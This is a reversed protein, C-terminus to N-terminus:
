EVFFILLKRYQIRFSFVEEIKEDDIFLKVGSVLLRDLSVSCFFQFQWVEYVVEEDDSSDVDFSKSVYISGYKEIDLDQLEKFFEDLFMECNKIVM